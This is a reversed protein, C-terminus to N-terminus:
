SRIAPRHVLLTLKFELWEGKMLWGLLSALRIRPIYTEREALALCWRTSGWTLGNLSGEGSPDDATFLLIPLFMMIVSRFM